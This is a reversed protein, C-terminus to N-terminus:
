GRTAGPVGAAEDYGGQGTLQAWVRFPESATVRGNLIASQWAGCARAFNPVSGPFAVLSLAEAMHTEEVGAAYCADLQWDFLRWDSACAHAALAGLHAVRPSLAGAASSLAAEYEKRVDLDPLHASWSDAVFGWASAGRCFGALAIIDRLSSSDGGAERYRALHHTGLSENVAILVVLWVVEHDLRELHRPTLALSTYLRDYDELMGPLATAMLGHHPLLYGRKRRVDDLHRELEQADM